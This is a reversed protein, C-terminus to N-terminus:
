YGYVTWGTEVISLNNVNMQPYSVNRKIGDAGTIMLLTNPYGSAIAKDIEVEIVVNAPVNTFEAVVTTGDKITLDGVTGKSIKYKSYRSDSFQQSSIFQWKKEDFVDKTIYLDAKVNANNSLIEFACEVGITIDQTVATSGNLNNITEVTTGENKLNLTTYAPVTVAYAGSKLSLYPLTYYTPNTSHGAQAWAALHTPVRYIGKVGLSAILDTIARVTDGAKKTEYGYADTRIDLLEENGATSGDPLSEFEAVEQEVTSLREAIGNVIKNQVANSSNANLASDVELLTVNEAQITTEGLNIKTENIQPTIQTM